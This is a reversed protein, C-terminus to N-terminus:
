SLFTITTKTDLPSWEGLGSLRYWAWDELREVGGEGFDPVVGSLGGLLTVM